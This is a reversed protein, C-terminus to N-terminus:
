FSILQAENQVPPQGPAGADVNQPIPVAGAPGGPPANYTPAGQGPLAGAMDSFFCQLLFLELTKYSHM